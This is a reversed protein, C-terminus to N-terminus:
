ELNYVFSLGQLISPDLSLAVPCERAVREMVAKEEPRWDERVEIVVNIEAIRRPDSAMVKQVDGRVHEFSIGSKEARIAMVTLMCSLQAVAVLDTPSFREGKGHNDVPADTRISSGSRIHLCETSKDGLYEVRATMIELASCNDQNIQINVM